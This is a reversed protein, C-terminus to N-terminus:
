LRDHIDADATTTFLCFPAPRATVSLRRIKEAAARRVPHIAYRCIRLCMFTNGAERLLPHRSVMERAPELWSRDSMTLFQRPVPRWLGAHCIHTRRRLIKLLPKHSSQAVDIPPSALVIHTPGARTRAGEVEISSGSSPKQTTKIESELFLCSPRCNRRRRQFFGFV